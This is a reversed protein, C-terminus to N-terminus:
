DWYFDECVKKSPFYEEKNKIPKLIDKPLREKPTGELWKCERDQGYYYRCNKCQEDIHEKVRQKYSKQKYEKMAYEYLAESMRRKDEKQDEYEQKYKKLDQYEKIIKEIISEEM